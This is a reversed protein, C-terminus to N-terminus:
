STNEKSIKEIQAAFYAINAPNQLKLKEYIAVAKEPIGQKLYIKALSESVIDLHDEDSKRAMNEPSFFEAKPKSIRPRNKIFESLLDVAEEPRKSERIKKDAEPPKESFHELWYIFDHPGEEQEEFTKALEIEPDYAVYENIAISEHEAKTDILPSLEKLPDYIIKYPPIEDLAPQLWEKEEEYPPEEPIDKQDPEPLIEKKTEADKLVVDPAPIEEPIEKELTAEPLGIIM